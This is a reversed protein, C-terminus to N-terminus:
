LKILEQNKIKNYASDKWCELIVPIIIFIKSSILNTIYNQLTYFSYSFYEDNLNLVKLNEYSKMNNKLVFQKDKFCFSNPINNSHNVKIINDKGIELGISEIIKKELKELYQYM